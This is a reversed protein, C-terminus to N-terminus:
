DSFIQQEGQKVMGQEKTALQAIYEPDNLKEIQIKLAESQVKAAELEKMTTALKSQTVHSQQMQGFLTYGAWGLFLIVFLLWIKIRRKAAPLTSQNATAAAM